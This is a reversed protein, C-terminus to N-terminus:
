EVVRKSKKKLTHIGKKKFCVPEGDSLPKICISKKKLNRIDVRIDEEKILSFHDNKHVTLHFSDPIKDFRYHDFDSHYGLYGCLIAEGIVGAAGSYFLSSWHPNGRRDEWEFIVHNKLNKKIIGELFTRAQDRFNFLFLAKILRGGIWDWQGGNQYLWPSSLAPHPFFGEPYPPLLTFSCNALDLENQKKILTKLFLRIEQSNMLGALIAEANGGVALIEKEMKLTRNSLPYMHIIFYGRDKMYLNKRTQQRLIGYREKWIAVRDPKNLYAFIKLMKEIAQLYKAQTYISFVPTSRDSLKTARQDPYSNEVDGWDATLGSYILNWKPDRRNKWIWNLAMELRSWITRSRIKKKLWIPQEVAIEYAAIVLSSEQDTSVTNKDSRGSMDVWDPIEGEIGQQKFFLELMNKFIHLPYHYKAYGILTSTDRIWVQPYDSGPSLGWIRNNRTIECNKLTMRLIYQEKDLHHNHTQYWTKLYRRKFEASILEKLDLELRGTKWGRSSGWFKGEKVFDLEIRYRGSRGYEFYLPLTFRSFSRKKIVEPLKFRRNDFSILKRGLDYIHYSIFYDSPHLNETSNNKVKLNLLIKEGQFASVFGTSCSLEVPASVLPHIGVLLLILFVSQIRM